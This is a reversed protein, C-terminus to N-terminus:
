FHPIEKIRVVILLLSRKTLFALHPIIYIIHLM